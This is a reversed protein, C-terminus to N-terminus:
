EEFQALFRDHKMRLADGSYYKGNKPDRGIHHAIQHWKMGNVHRLVLVQRMLSDEVEDVFRHIRNYELMCLKVKAEILEKSDALEAAIATKDTIRNLYPLGTIRATMGTALAELERLREIDAEIERNLHFLEGLEKRTM